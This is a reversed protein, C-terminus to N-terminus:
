LQSLPPPLPRVMLSFSSTSFIRFFPYGSLELPPPPLPTPGKNVSWSKNHSGQHDIISNQNQVLYQCIGYVLAYFYFAYFVYYNAKPSHPVKQIIKQVFTEISKHAQIPYGALDSIHMDLFDQGNKYVLKSNFNSM